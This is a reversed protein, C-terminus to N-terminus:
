GSIGHDFMAVIAVGERNGIKALLEADGRPRQAEVLVLPQDRGLPAAGLADIRM